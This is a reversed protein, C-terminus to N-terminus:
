KQAAFGKREPSRPKYAFGDTDQIVAKFNEQSPTLLRIRRCTPARLAPEETAAQPESGAAGAPVVRGWM